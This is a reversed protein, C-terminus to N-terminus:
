LLMDAVRISQGAISVTDGAILTTTSTYKGHKPNRHVVLKRAKVNLVWYEPVGARAYLDRKITLDSRLSTDAIEIVLVMEDGRPHRKGLDAMPEACICLDPEPFNYTRDGPAVEMPAQVRVRALDFLRALLKLLLPIADAHPPSQGLKNILDGDLLEFRRDAFVGAATMQDVAERTFRM